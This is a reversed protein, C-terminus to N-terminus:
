DLGDPGDGVGLLQAVDARDRVGPVLAPALLFSVLTLVPPTVGGLPGADYLAFDLSVCLVYTRPCVGVPCVCSSDDHSDEDCPGGSYDALLEHGHQDGGSVLDCSGGARGGPGGGELRSACRGNDRVSQVARGQEGRG